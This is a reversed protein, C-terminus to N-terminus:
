PHGPELHASIAQVQEGTLQSDSRHQLVLCLIRNGIDIYCPYWFAVLTLDPMVSWYKRMLSAPHVATCCRFVHPNFPLLSILVVDAAVFHGTDSNARITQIEDSQSHTRHKGCVLSLTWLSAFCCLRLSM